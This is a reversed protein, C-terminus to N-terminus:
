LMDNQKYMDHKKIKMTEINKILDPPHPQLILQGVKGIFFSFLSETISPVRTM